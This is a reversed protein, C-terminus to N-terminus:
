RGWAKGWRDQRLLIDEWVVGDELSAVECGVQGDLSRVLAGGVAMGAGVCMLVSRCMCVRIGECAEVFASGCVSGVRGCRGVSM